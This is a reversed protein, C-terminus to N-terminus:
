FVVKLAATIGHASHDSGLVTDVAIGVTMNPRLRWQAEVNAVAADESHAAGLITFPDGGDFTHVGAPELDGWAHRWGAAGRLSFAGMRNTEFRVGLTSMLIDNESAEGTLAAPGGTEVFGDTEVRLATLNVFPEAHGGSATMRYGAEVFGQMVSADYDADLAAAFGPFAVARGTEVSSKAYGVGGRVGWQGFRGGAYVLGQVTKVEALSNRREIELETDSWAVAVGVTLNEGVARDAGAVLGRADGEARAANFDGFSATNEVWARAWVSGGDPQGDSLRALAADRPMRSDELLVTRASPHVEGSLQDFADIAAADDPLMLLANKVPSGDPLSDAGAAAEQQNPTVGADALARLQDFEIFAQTDTYTDRLGTFATLFIDDFDFEGTIGGSAEAVLYQSYLVLPAATNLSLVSGQQIDLTGTTLFRDALGAGGIDVFLTSGEFFTTDASTQLLDGAGGDRLTIGGRNELVELGLLSTLDNTAANSRAILMGTELNLVSDADGLFFSEGGTSDWIGANLFVSETALVEVTGRIQGPNAIGVQEGLISIALDSSVNSSNRIVGENFVAANQQASSFINVGSFGGEVLGRVTVFTDGDGGNSVVVGTDGGFVDNVDIEIGGSGAGAEVAIGIGNLAFVSGLSLIDTAGTGFNAVRIGDGIAQVDITEVTLDTAGVGNRAFIGYDGGTVTGGTRIFTEGTGDNNTRIGQAGGEVANALVILDTAGTGNAIDIGSEVGTVAGTTTVSTRGVGSNQILIGNAGGSVDVANVEVNGGSVGADVRIGNLLESFVSGSAEVRTEGSGLHEIVIGDQRAAVNTVDVFVGTTAAGNEIRVGDDGFGIIDGTSTIRTVGSGQNQAVVGRWGIVESTNFTLDGNLSGTYGYVGWGQAAIRGTATITTDGSGFNQVAVGNLAANVENVSVEVGTTAPGASVYVGNLALATVLGTSSVRTLGTGDNVVYIGNGGGTVDTSRVQVDAGNTAEVFVGDGTVGIVSGTLLLDVEGAGDFEARVGTGAAAVTDLIMLMNGTTGISTAHVGDGTANTVTGLTMASISSGGFNFLRLAAAGDAVIDGTGYFFIEGTTVMVAGGGILDSENEDTYSILGPGTVALAVGNGNQSTDVGFGPATTVTVGPGAIIQSQNTQGSCTWITAPNEVCQAAAPTALGAAGLMGSALAIASVTRNLRACHRGKSLTHSTM